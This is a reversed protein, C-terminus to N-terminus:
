VGSDGSTQHDALWREVDAWRFRRHRGVKISKPGSGKYIWQHITATPVGLYRAVEATTGLKQEAPM